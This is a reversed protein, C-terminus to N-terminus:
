TAPMWMKLGYESGRISPNHDSIALWKLLKVRQCKALRM